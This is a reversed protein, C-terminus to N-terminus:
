STFLVFFIIISMALMILPGLWLHMFSQIRAKPTAGPLYIVRVQSGITAQRGTGTEATFTVVKGTNSTFRVVPAYTTSIRSTNKILEIITGTTTIGNKVLLLTELTTYLGISVIACLALLMLNIGFITM